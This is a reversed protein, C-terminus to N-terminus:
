GVASVPLRLCVRWQGNGSTSSLIFEPKGTGGNVGIRRAPPQVNSLAAISAVATYEIPRLAAAGDAETPYSQRFLHLLNAPPRPFGAFYTELFAQDITFLGGVSDVVAVDFEIRNPSAFPQDNVSFPPSKANFAM